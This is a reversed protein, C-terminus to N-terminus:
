WHCSLINFTTLFTNNLDTLTESHGLQIDSNAALHYVLDFKEKAFLLGLKESDLLDFEYLQFHKNQMVGKLHDKRGLLFNDVCVVDEGKEILRDILHSGIFGAGGTVLIKM